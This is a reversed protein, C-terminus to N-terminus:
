DHNPQIVRGKWTRRPQRRAHDLAKLGEESWNPCRGKLTERLHEANSAFVRLNDPHNNKIDGDIHDVVEEPSLYRGIKEEVVLRHVAVYSGHKLGNPHGLTRRYLYGKMLKEGHKWDHRQEMRPVVINHLKPFNYRRFISQVANATKGIVDAIERSYLGSAALEMVRLVTDPEKCGSLDLEFGEFAKSCAEAHLNRYEQKPDTM